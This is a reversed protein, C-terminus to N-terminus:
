GTKSLVAGVWNGARSPTKGKVRLSQFSVGSKFSKKAQTESFIEQPLARSKCNAFFALFALGAFALKVGYCSALERGPRVDVRITAPGAGFYQRTGNQFASGWGLGWGRSPSEGKM